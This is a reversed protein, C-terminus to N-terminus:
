TGEAGLRSANGAPPRSSVGQRFPVFGFGLLIGFFAARVWRDVAHDRHDEPVSHQAAVSCRNRWQTASSKTRSDHAVVAHCITHHHSERRVSVSTCRCLAFYGCKNQGGLNSRQSTPVNRSSGHRSSWLSSALAPWCYSIRRQM